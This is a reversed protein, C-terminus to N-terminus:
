TRALMYLALQRGPLCGDATLVQTAFLCREFSM